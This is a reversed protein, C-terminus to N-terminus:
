WQRGEALEAALMASRIAGNAGSGDDKGVFQSRSEKSLETNLDLDVGNPIHGRRFWFAARVDVFVM